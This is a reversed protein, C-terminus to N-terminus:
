RRVCTSSFLFFLSTSLAFRRQSAPCQCEAPNDFGPTNRKPTCCELRFFFFFVPLAFALASRECSGKHSLSFRQLIFFIDWFSLLFCNSFYFIFGFDRM